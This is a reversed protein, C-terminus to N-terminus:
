QDFEKPYYISWKESYTKNKIAHTLYFMHKIPFRKMLNVASDKYGAKELYFGIVQHYPYTYNLQKLLSYIRNVSAKGKANEYIKLVEYVGGSYDPRVAIDILTREINTIKYNNNSNIVGLNNTYMGNLFYIKRNKFEAWNNTLKPKKSLAMNIGDQSLNNNGKAKPYQEKNLYISKVINQTLDHMFAATYHSIYANPQLVLALQLTDVEYNKISFLKKSTAYDSFILDIDIIINNKQLFSKFNEYTTVEPLRWENRNSSFINNLDQKSLIGTDNNEIVKIIDKKYLDMIQFRNPRGM